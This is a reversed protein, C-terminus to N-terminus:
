QEARRVQHVIQEIEEKSVVEAPPCSRVRDIIERLATRKEKPVHIYMVYEDTAIVDLTDGPHIEGRLEQPLKVSYDRRVKTSKM